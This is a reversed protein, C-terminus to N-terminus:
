KDLSDRSERYNRESDQYAWRLINDSKQGDIKIKIMEDIKILSKKQFIRVKERVM